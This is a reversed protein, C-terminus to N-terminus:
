FAPSFAKFADVIGHILPSVSKSSSLIFYKAIFMVNHQQQQQQM